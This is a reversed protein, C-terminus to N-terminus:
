VGLGGGVYKLYIELHKHMGMPDDIMLIDYINGNIVIRGNQSTLDVTTEDQPDASIVGNLFSFPNWVWKKSLQKCHHFGCIFIHTTEQVKADFSQYTNQGGQFDLWGFLDVVDTWTHEREGISNKQGEDKVQVLATINGGVSM